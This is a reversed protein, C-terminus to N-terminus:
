LRSSKVKNVQENRRSQEFKEILQDIMEKDKKRLTFIRRKEKKLLRLLFYKEKKTLLM